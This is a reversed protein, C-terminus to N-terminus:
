LFPFSSSFLTSSYSSRFFLFPGTPHSLKHLMRVLQLAFARACAFQDSQKLDHLLTTHRASWVMSASSESRMYSLNLNASSSFVLDEKFRSTVQQGPTSDRASNCKEELPIARSYIVSDAGHPQFTCYM